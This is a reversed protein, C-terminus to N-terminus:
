ARIRDAQAKVFEMFRAALAASGGQATVMKALGDAVVTSIRDIVGEAEAELVGFHPAAMRALALSSVHRGPLIALDQYGPHAHLQAVLDVAPALQWGRGELHLVGHNKVHDDSNGIVLNFVMRHFLERMDAEPRRSLRRLLQALEVYSGLSSAYPVDMLASASLYHHRREDAISGSRDFRELLLAHGVALPQLLFAPVEIGCQQALGLTVAEVVEMDHVDGRSAFKAIHRRGGHIFTAKPRAGGLSGGRLLQQMRPAVPLGAEIRRSSEALDELSPAETAPLESRIPLEAAFVMAGVRDESTLLLAEVDSLPRGQQVELVKRGWSDPLADRLTLPLAGGDRVRQAPLVFTADRLPLHEPNLPLPTSAALYRRGYAFEGSEMVGRRALKLLGVPLAEEGRHRAFGVYLSSEALTGDSIM